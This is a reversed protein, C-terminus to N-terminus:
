FCMYTYNGILIKEDIRRFIQRLDSFVQSGFHYYM